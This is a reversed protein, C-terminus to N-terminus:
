RQMKEQLATSERGNGKSHGNLKVLKYICYPNQELTKILNTSAKNKFNEQLNIIAHKQNKSYTILQKATLRM